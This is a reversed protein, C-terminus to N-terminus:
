GPSLRSGTLGDYLDEWRPNMDEILKLKWDRKWEKIRKERLIAERIDVHVEYWVLHHVKYKRTFGPLM